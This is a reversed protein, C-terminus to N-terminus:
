GEGCVRKKYGSVEGEERFHFGAHADVCMTLTMPTLLLIYKANLDGYQDSTLYLRLM